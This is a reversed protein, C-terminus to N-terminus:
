YKKRNKIDLIYKVHGSDYIRYFPLKEMIQFETMNDTQYGMNKLKNKEFSTRHYRKLNNKHIYWYSQSINDKIFGLSEYLKGTSIDNSAYSYIKTPEYNKIFYKLLKGAAGIVQTNIITCFRSLNWGSNDGKMNNSKSFTMVSVLEDNHFLGLKISSNTKGQIHNNDLFNNCKKSDIEKVICKRAYIRNDYMGLKSLIISKVIDPNNRVWDEWIHLLQIGKKMCNNSKYIHYKKDKFETSHWYIGNCEIAINKSPIYFDLEYPKIVNRVKKFYEINYEKLISEIFSEIYTTNNLGSRITCIDINNNKRVRYTHSNIIFCKDNCLDCNSDICKCKFTKYIDGPIKYIDIINPDENYFRENNIQNINEILEKSQMPHPVGFKYISNQTKKNKVNDIQSPNEVGYRKLCTAKIKEKNNYNRDGYKEYKTLKIKEIIKQSKSPNEVGYRELNTTQAQTKINNNKMVNEVGYREINTQKIKNKVEDNTLPTIDGYREICTKNRKEKWDPNNASCKNSCFVRYGITMNVFKTPKGCNKCKPYEILGYYYWYLKEIWQLESPYNDTLYQHFKPYKSKIIFEQYKTLDTLKPFGM